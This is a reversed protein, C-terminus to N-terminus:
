RTRVRQLGGAVGVGGHDRTRRRGSQGPPREDDVAVPVCVRSKVKTSVTVSTIASAGHVTTDVSGTFRANPVRVVQERQDRQELVIM